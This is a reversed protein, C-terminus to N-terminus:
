WASGLLCEDVATSAVQSCDYSVEPFGEARLLEEAVYQPSLCLEGFRTLRVSRTELRVEAAL